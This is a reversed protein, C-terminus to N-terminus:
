FQGKGLLVSVLGCVGERVGACLHPHELALDLPCPGAYVALLAAACDTVMWRLRSKSSFLIPLVPLAKVLAGSLEVSIFWM